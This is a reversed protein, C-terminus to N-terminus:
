ELGMEKLAEAASRFGDVAAPAGCYVGAHLLIEAIEQPSVGNNIAGRVHIKIEHPRNLAALMALTLMSRTKRDLGPRNWVTGWCQATVFEQLPRTFDTAGAIARDVYEAGLVARRTALGQDYQKQDM